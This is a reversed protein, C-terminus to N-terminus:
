DDNKPNHMRETARLVGIIQNALARARKLAPQGLGERDFLPSTSRHSVYQPQIAEIEDRISPIERQSMRPFMSADAFLQRLDETADLLAHRVDNGEDTLKWAVRKLLALQKEPM